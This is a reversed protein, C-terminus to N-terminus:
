FPTTRHVLFIPSSQTKYYLSKRETACLQPQRSRCVVLMERYIDCWRGEVPYIAGVITSITDSGFDELVCRAFDGIAVKTALRQQDSDSIGAGIMTLDRDRV